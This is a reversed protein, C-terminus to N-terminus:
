RAFVNATQRIPLIHVSINVCFFYLCINWPLKLWSDVKSGLTKRKDHCNGVSQPPTHASRTQARVLCSSDAISGLASLQVLATSTTTCCNQAKRM